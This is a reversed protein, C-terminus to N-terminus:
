RQNDVLDPHDDGMGGEDWRRGVKNGGLGCRTDDGPISLVLFIVSLWDCM